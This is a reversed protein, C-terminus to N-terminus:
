GLLITFLRMLPKWLRPYEERILRLARESHIGNWGAHQPLLVAHTGKAATGIAVHGKAYAGVAIESAAAFGGISYKGVAFGGISLIGAAFGGVAAAGVAIGGIAILLGLSLGALAFLGLAIGGLSVLGVAAGGIAIVGVAINGVAVIGKARYFGARGLNVHVLPIGLLERKSRYEYHWGARQGTGADKKTKETRSEAGRVLDDLSVGFFDSLAILKESEPLSQGSEWKSVAQRSVGLEGALNEQSMGKSKRLEQLKESFDM